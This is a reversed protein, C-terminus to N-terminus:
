PLDKVRVPLRNGIGQHLQTLKICLALVRAARKMRQKTAKTSTAGSGQGIPQICEM